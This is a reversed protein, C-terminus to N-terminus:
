RVQQGPKIGVPKTSTMKTGKLTKGLLKTADLKIATQKDHKMPQARKTIMAANIGKGVVSYLLKAPAGLPHTDIM